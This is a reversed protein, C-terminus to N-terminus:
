EEDEDEDEDDEEDDEDEYPNSVGAMEFCWEDEFWLIDNLTTEGIGDPYLDELINELNEMGGERLIHNFTDVAGAWPIFKKLSCEIYIKM